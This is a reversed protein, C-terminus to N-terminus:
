RRAERPGGPARIAFTPMVSMMMLVARRRLGPADFVARSRKDFGSREALAEAGAPRDIPQQGDGTRVDM